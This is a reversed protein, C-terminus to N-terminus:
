AYQTLQINEHAGSQFTHSQIDNISVIPRWKTMSRLGNQFLLYAHVIYKSIQPAIQRIQIAKM